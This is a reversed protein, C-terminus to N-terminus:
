QLCMQMKTVCNLNVVTDLTLLSNRVTDDQAEVPGSMGGRGCEMTLFLLRSTEGPLCSQTWSDGPVARWVASAAALRATKLLKELNAISM